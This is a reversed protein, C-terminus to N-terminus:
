MTLMLFLIALCCDNMSRDGELNEMCFGLFPTGDWKPVGVLEVGPLVSATKAIPIPPIKKKSISAGLQDENSVGMPRSCGQTGPWGARGHIQPIESRRCGSAMIARVQIM